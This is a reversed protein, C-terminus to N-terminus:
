MTKDIRDLVEQMTLADVTGRPAETQLRARGLGENRIGSTGRIARAALWRHSSSMRVRHDYHWWWQGDPGVPVVQKACHLAAERATVDGFVEAYRPGRPPEYRRAKTAWGM